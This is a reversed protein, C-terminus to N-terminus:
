PVARLARHRWAQGGSQGRRESADPEVTGPEGLEQLVLSRARTITSPDDATEGLASVLSARLARIDDTESPGSSWGM